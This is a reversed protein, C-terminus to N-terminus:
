KAAQESQAGAIHKAAQGGDKAIGAVQGAVQLQNAMQQMKARDDRIKKVVDDSRLIDPNTGAIEAMIDITKDEDIKDLVGPKAQAITGVRALFNDISNMEYERQAKALPSLYVPDFDAGFLEEPVPPLEGNRYLIFFTRLILPSHVEHTLRGVVPGLETMAEAIRHQVEPVTMQKTIESLSRFLNVYFGDMINNKVEEMFEKTIQFNSNWVLPEIKDNAHKPDRYNVAAPNFNLPAMYGKYPSSIPPDAEKMARRLTTRKAANILKIDALCDMAPSFGFVDNTDKYFRGVHFPLEEFGSEEILEPGDKGKQAIWVSEYPMNKSDGKTFDRRERPGVYHLFDMDTFAKSTENNREYEGMIEMVSTGAKVGWLMYAEMPTLKFNRYIACINGYADEEYNCQEIPITTFRVKKKTDAQSLINLTGFVLGDMYAEQMSTDFNSSNLAGLVADRSDFFFKKIAHSKMLDKNKTELGFWKSSPNTLNSHFGAAATRASRIATSDYLYNFQLREGKTKVTTIWAKRPLIFDALDQFYSKWDGNQGTLAKNNSVIRQIDAPM